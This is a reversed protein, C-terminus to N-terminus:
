IQALKWNAVLTEDDSTTLTNDDSDAIPASVNGTVLMEQLESIQGQLNAIDADHDEITEYVGSKTQINYTGEQDGTYLSIIRKEVLEISPPDIWEAQDGFNAYFLLVENTGDSAFVGKERYYFGQTLSSNDFTGSVSIVNDASVSVSDIALEEIVNVLSTRSRRSQGQSLAGDGMQIKTFQLTITGALAQALLEQGENTLYETKAM